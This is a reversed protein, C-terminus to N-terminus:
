KRWVTGERIQTMLLNRSIEPFAGLIVTREIVNRLERINGPWEYRVLSARVKNDIPVPPM